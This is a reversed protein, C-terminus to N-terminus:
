KSINYRIKLLKNLKNNESNKRYFSCAVIKLDNKSDTGYTFMHNDIDRIKQDEALM